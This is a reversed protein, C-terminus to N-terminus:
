ELQGNHIALSWNHGNNNDWHNAGDHFCFNMRTTSSVDPTLACYWRKDAASMPIDQIDSWSDNGGYGLHTYVQRAGNKALLGEYTIQVPEGLTVPMPTISVGEEVNVTKIKNAATAAAKRPVQLAGRKM